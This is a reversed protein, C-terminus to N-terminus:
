IWISFGPCTLKEKRVPLYPVPFEKVPFLFSGVKMVQHHLHFKKM